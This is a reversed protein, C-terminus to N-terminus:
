GFTMTVNAAPISQGLVTNAAAVAQGNTGAQTTNASAGGTLSRAGAFAAADAANQAQTKAVMIMGLDIALAIFACLAVASVAVYPLIVGRRRRRDQRNRMTKRRM